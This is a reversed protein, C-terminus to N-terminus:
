AGRFAALPSAGHLCRLHHRRVHGEPPLPESWKGRGCDQSMPCHVASRFVCAKASMGASGLFLPNRVILPRCPRDNVMEPRLAHLRREGLTWWWSMKVLSSNVCCTHTWFVAIFPRRPAKKSSARSTARQTPMTNWCHETDHVTCM